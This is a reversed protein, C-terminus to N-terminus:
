DAVYDAYIAQKDLLSYDTYYNSSIFTFSLHLKKYLWLQRSTDLNNFRRQKYIVDPPGFLVYIMGFDTRWGPHGNRSFMRNVRQLRAYYQLMVPNLVRQHLPDHEIWFRNLAAQQDKPNVARLRKMEKKPMLYRLEDLATDYDKFRLDIPSQQVVFWTENQAHYGNATQEIELTYKGSALEATSLNFEFAPNLENTPISENQGHITKGNEDKIHYSTHLAEVNDSLYSEYYVAIVPQHFSYFHGLNPHSSFDDLTMRSSLKITSIHFNNDFYDPIDIRGEQKIRSGDTDDTVVILSRYSGHGINLNFKLNQVIERSTTKDYSRYTLDQSIDQQRLLTNNKDFIYLTATFHATFQKADRFFHLKDNSVQLYYELRAYGRVPSKYTFYETQLSILDQAFGFTLLFLAMLVVARYTKYKGDNKDMITETEEKEKNRM